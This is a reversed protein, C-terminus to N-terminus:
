RRNHIYCRKNQTTKETSNSRKPPRGPGKTAPKTIATATAPKQPVPTSSSTTTTVYGHDHTFVNSTSQRSKDVESISPAPAYSTPPSTRPSAYPPLSYCHELQVQSLQSAQSEQSSCSAPSLKGRMDDDNTDSTSISRGLGNADKPKSAIAKAVKRATEVCKSSQSLDSADKLQSLPDTSTGFRLDPTSPLKLNIPTLNGGPSPAKEPLVEDEEETTEGTHHQQKKLQEEIFEREIEEMYETNRRRKEQYEREEESDSYVRDYGYSKQKKPETPSSERGPTRPPKAIEELDVVPEPTKIKEERKKDLKEDPLEDMSIDEEESLTDSYLRMKSKMASGSKPTVTNIEDETDSDSYIKKAVEKSKSVLPPLEDIDSLSSTDLESESEASSSDDESSSTFFSSVSGSKRKRNNTTETEKLKENFTSTSKPLDVEHESDSGQVMDEQDSLGKKSDDEDRRVPSPQKRIRQFRPLKLIQTRFGLAFGNFDSTERNNNNIM